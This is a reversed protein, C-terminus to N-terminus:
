HRGLMGGRGAAAVEPADRPWGLASSSRARGVATVQGMQGVRRECDPRETTGAARRPRGGRREDRLCEDKRESPRCGGPM